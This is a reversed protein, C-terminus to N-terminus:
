TDFCVSIEVCSFVKGCLVMMTANLVTSLVCLTVGLVEGAVTGQWVVLMTGICLVTLAVMERANPLKHSANSDGWHIVFAMIATVVPLSARIIQNLTLTISILSTNNTAINAAQCIGALAILLYPRHQPSAEMDDKPQKPLADSSVAVSAGTMLVLPALAVVSFAM